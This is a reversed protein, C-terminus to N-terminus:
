TDRFEEIKKNGEQMKNSFFEEFDKIERGKKSRFWDKGMIETINDINSKLKRNIEQNWISQGTLDPIDYFRAIMNSGSNNYGSGMKDKLDNLDKQFNEVM